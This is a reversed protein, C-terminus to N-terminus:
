NRYKIHNRAIVLVSESQGTPHSLLMPMIKAFAEVTFKEPSVGLLVKWWSGCRVVIATRRHEENDTELIHPAASHHPIYWLARAKGESKM